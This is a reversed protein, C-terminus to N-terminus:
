FEEGAYAAYTYVHYGANTRFIDADFGRPNDRKLVEAIGDIANDLTNLATYPSATDRAAEREQRLAKAINIYDKRTM